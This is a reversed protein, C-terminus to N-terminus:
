FYGDDPNYKEPYTGYKMARWRITGMTKLFCEYCIYKIKMKVIQEKHCIHCKM